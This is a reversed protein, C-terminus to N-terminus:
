WFALVTRLREKAQAADEATLAGTKRLILRNDLTFLKPRIICPVNLGAERYSEIPCDGPWPAHHKTTIMALVAHGQRNFAETSLVLAPRKKVATRDTFPFPVVVIEFPRCIM